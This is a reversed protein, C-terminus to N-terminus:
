HLDNNIKDKITNLMNEIKINENSGDTRLRLLPIGIANLIRNKKSDRENYEPHRSHYSTGDVEIALIPEKDFKDFILFDVHSNPHKAFSLDNSDITSYDKILQRLSYHTVFDFNEYEPKLLINKIIPYLIDESISDTKGNNKKLYKIRQKEYDKYLLDFVSHIKSYIVEYNYYNGLRVLEGINTYKNEDNDSVVIRLARKARSIAVNLLNPNDVFESIKNDVTTLIIAEKERGQFKHVTAVEYKQNFQLNLESVQDNYPTIIGIDKCGLKELEPIIEQKVVDIQRQNIHGRAHNGKATKYIKIVDKEMNDKTMILLENNYFKENFLTAIKPHCRYHEKLLTIPADKWVKLSSDLLSNETYNYVDNFNNENWIKMAIVKNKDDIVNPLQKSDGVIVANKACSFALAGTVLDVQSSEDIIIYDYLFNTSLSKKISYTTSLIVPYDDIFEKTNNILDKKSYFKRKNKIHYKSYLSYSFLQKSKDTLKEIKEDFKYNNLKKEIEQKEKSLEEIVKLYYNNKLYPMSFDFENNLLWVYSFGYKFLYIIKDLINIKNQSKIEIEQLMSLIKNSKVKKFLKKDISKGISNYYEEFYHYETRYDSLEKSIESLRAKYNLMTSIEEALEKIETENKNVELNEFNNTHNSISPLIGTQNNIFNDINEAKGLFATIFDVGEKKLKIQINEIASNNNSVVAVNKGQYILNAIINLITQTKGTGPPGQIISINSSFAKEVADKQSENIGFPYILTKINQYRIPKTKNLYSDLISSKDIRRIGNYQHKLVNYGDDTKLSVVSAISKFYNFLNANKTTKNISIDKLLYAGLITGDKLEIYFYSNTYLHIFHADLILSNDISIDKDNIINITKIYECIIVHSLGYGYYKNSDAYKIYYQNNKIYFHSIERTKDIGKVIIIKKTIAM